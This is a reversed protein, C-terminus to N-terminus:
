HEKVGLVLQRRYEAVRVGVKKRKRTGWAKKAPSASAVKIGQKKGVGSPGHKKKRTVWARDAPESM